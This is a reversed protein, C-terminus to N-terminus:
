DTAKIEERVKYLDADTFIPPCDSKRSQEMSREHADVAKMLKILGAERDALSSELEEIRLNQVDTSLLYTLEEVRKILTEVAELIESSLTTPYDRWLPLKEMIKEIEPNMKGEKWPHKV